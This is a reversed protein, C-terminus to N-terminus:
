KSLQDVLTGFRAAEDYTMRYWDGKEARIFMNGFHYVKLSRGDEYKLSIVWTMGGYENPNEEFDDDLKLSLLYDVVANKDEGEFSYNYWEPLSSLDVAVVNGEIPLRIDETQESCGFLASLAALILATCVVKKM